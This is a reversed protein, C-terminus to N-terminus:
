PLRSWFSTRSLLLVRCVIGGTLPFRFGFCWTAFAIAFSVGVILVHTLQETAREPSGQGLSKAVMAGGTIGLGISVSTTMFLITGAFGVAAALEDVGLMSIFLMDVLDVVFLAVFGVASTLSMTIIHRTLSGTLFKAKADPPQKDTPPSV